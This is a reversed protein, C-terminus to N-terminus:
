HLCVALCIEVLLFLHSLCLSSTKPDEGGRFAFNWVFRIVTPVTQIYFVIQLDGGGALIKPLLGFVIVLTVRVLWRFLMTTRHFIGSYCSHMGTPHMGGVQQGYGLMCQVPPIDAWPTQRPIQGPPNQGPPTQGPLHRGQAKQGPPNGPLNEARPTQGLPSPHRDLPHTDWYAIPWVGLSHVSLCRLFCLRRLSRKRATFIICEAFFTKTAILHISGRLLFFNPRYEASSEIPSFHRWPMGLLSDGTNFHFFNVPSSQSKQSPFADRRQYSETFVQFQLQPSM